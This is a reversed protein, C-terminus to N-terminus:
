ADERRVREVEVRTGRDSCGPQQMMVMPQLHFYGGALQVPNLPSPTLADIARGGAFQFQEWAHYVIVQGPRVTESPAAHLVCDGLDNFVRVRDGDRIGRREADRANLFIVPEGRQLRLLPGHDRWAAHISWRNHGSTMRLPWDGGIPPSDKHVPLVEGYEEYLPHDIYFQLRRTLTPWPVKKQVHWSNAVITAGPEIDASNGIHVVGTGVGTFRAFGKESLERWGVGGLNTSLELMEQLLAQPNDETFRRQFTFDDYCTDLRREKGARDVFTSIRRERALEQVKKLILCHIQWDTKAEGVPPVAEVTPHSFPALASSWAIDDKEYYGAAPLVYDSYRATNSMRWDVTVLLSLKPLLHEILADYGRVRRLPNGGVSFLVRPATKPVFQWGKKTAEALVESFERPLSPDWRRASGYREALGGHQHHFLATAIVNGRAYDERAFHHILMEDSYGDLKLRAIEPLMKATLLAIDVRPALKGSLPILMEAGSISLMPVASYGAGERGFHGTLAFVLLISREMELGHYFKGFNTTCVNACARAGAIRRALARIRGASVGTIAAAKEPTYSALHERIREFVTTVEVPGAVTEVEFTGEIAPAIAGLALSRRPAPVVRGAATDFVHFVDDAGTPDLDSGRLFRGTDLRVLLPMDTQEALFDPRYLKESVIVHAMSLALAADSEVAVPVWEDAHIASPSFDPAICVVFAGKYRAETIFHANPIHTYNPNGGWILVVDSHLLDDMSSTFIIKGTTTTVGPAHDGMEATNEFIPTDLLYASRTLGLSHCGNSSASGLDWYISGPGAERSTIADVLESAIETLAEDWSVRKWRGEGRAGVRRLPATLRSADYMRDSYCAGKQCGRPNFDPLDPTTQPYEAVQEERWVIGDKVYVNWACRQYGCNAYHTGKVVRDWTWQRRYVDGLGAYALPIARRVSEPDATATPNERPSCRLRVLALAVASGSAILFARRTLVPRM